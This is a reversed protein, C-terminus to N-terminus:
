LRLWKQFSLLYVLCLMGSIILGVPVLIIVIRRITKPIEEVEMPTVLTVSPTLHFFVDTYTSDTYITSNSAFYPKGNNDDSNFEQKLITSTYRSSTDISGSYAFNYGVFEYTNNFVLYKGDKYCMPELNKKIFILFNSTDYSFAYYYYVGSQYEPLNELDNPFNGGYATVNSTVDSTAFCSTCFLTFVILVLSLIPLFKHTFFNDKNDM